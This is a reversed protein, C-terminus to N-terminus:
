QNTQVIGFEPQAVASVNITVPPVGLVSNLVPLPALLQGEVTVKDTLEEATMYANTIKVPTVTMTSSGNAVLNAISQARPVLVAPGNWRLRVEQDGYFVNDDVDKALEQAAVVVASKAVQQMFIVGGFDYVLALLLFLIYVYGIVQFTVAGAGSELRNLLNKPFEFRRKNM